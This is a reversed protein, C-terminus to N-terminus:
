LNKLLEILFRWSKQVSSIQVREDPSHAGLTNPGISIMEMEPFTEAFIGCELGAHIAIVNPQVNFVKSYLNKAIALLKSDFKPEWGPYPGIREVTANSFVKSIAKVLRDRETNIFSRAHTQLIYEGDGFRVTALNNSTEVIEEGGESWAYVGNPMSLIQDILGKTVDVDAASFEGEVVDVSVSLNPDTRVYAEKAIKSFESIKNKFASVADNEIAVIGSCYNPIVNTLQGAELSVLSVDVVESVHNLCSAFVRIANALNKHIEVGSHGGTLNSILIKYCAAPKSVKRNEYKGHIKVDVGGACGVTIEEDNESDLNLMLRGSLQEKTLAMAGTMGIEEDVTFLAEIPPHEITNSSLVAMIASIGIGNDAGLTTENATVWDGEIQLEIGENDFDFTSTMTKTHVMDVHGQLIITPRGEKGPTAPKRIIVNGIADKSTELGLSHGFDIMYQVIREERKSPRPIASIAEFHQWIVRPNLQSLRNLTSM